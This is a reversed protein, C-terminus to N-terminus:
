LLGVGGGHGGGGGGGVRGGGEEAEADVGGGGCGVDRVRVWYGEEEAVGGWGLLCGGGEGVGEEVDEGEDGGLMVRFAHGREEGGGAEGAGGRSGVAEFGGGGEEVEGLGEDDDVDIGDAAIFRALDPDPLPQRPM